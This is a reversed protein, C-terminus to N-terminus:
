QNFYQNKELIIYFNLVSMYINDVTYIPYFKFVECRTNSIQSNILWKAADNM